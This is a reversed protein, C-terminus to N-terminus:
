EVHYTNLISIAWDFAVNAEAAMSDKLKTRIKTKLYDPNDFDLSKHSGSIMKKIMQGGFLDGM